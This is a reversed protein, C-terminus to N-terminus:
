VFFPDEIIKNDMLDTQVVGPVTAPYWNNGRVQKFTWDKDINQKAVGDALAPTTTALAALAVASLVTKYRM